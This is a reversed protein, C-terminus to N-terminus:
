ITSLFDKEHKLKEEKARQIQERHERMQQLHSELVQESTQHAKSFDIRKGFKLPIPPIPLPMSTMEGDQM